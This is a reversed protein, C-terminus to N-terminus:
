CVTSRQELDKSVMKLTLPINTPQDEVPETLDINMIPTNYNNNIKNFFSTLFTTRMRKSEIEQTIKQYNEIHTPTIIHEKLRTGDSFRHLTILKQCSQCYVHKNDDFLDYSKDELIKKLLIKGSLGELNQSIEAIKQEANEDRTRKALLNESQIVTHATSKGKGQVFNNTIGFYDLKKQQLSNKSSSSNSSKGTNM